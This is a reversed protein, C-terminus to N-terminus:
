VDRIEGETRAGKNYDDPHREFEARCGISCFYYSRGQYFLSEKIHKKDLEMRCVPDTVMQAENNMFQGRVHFRATREAPRGIRLSPSWNMHVKRAAGSRPRRLLQSNGRREQAAEVPLIPTDSCVNIYYLLWSALPIAAGISAELQHALSPVRARPAQGM